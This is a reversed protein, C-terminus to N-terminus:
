LCKRGHWWSSICVVHARISRKHTLRQDTPSLSLYKKAKTNCKSDWIRIKIDANMRAPGHDIKRSAPSWWDSCVSLLYTRRYNIQLQLLIRFTVFGQNSTIRSWVIGGSDNTRRVCLWLEAALVVGLLTDIWSRKTSRPDPFIPCDTRCWGWIVVIMIKSSVIFSLGLGCQSRHSVHDDINSMTMGWSNTKMLWCYWSVLVFNAVADAVVCCELRSIPAWWVARRKWYRVRNSSKTGRKPLAVAHMNRLGVSGISILKLPQIKVRQYGSSM